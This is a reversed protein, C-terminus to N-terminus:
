SSLKSKAIVVPHAALLSALRSVLRVAKSASGSCEGETHTTRAAGLTVVEIAPFLFIGPGGM